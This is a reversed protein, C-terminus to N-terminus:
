NGTESAAPAAPRPPSRYAEVTSPQRHARYPGRNAVDRIARPEPLDKLSTLSASDESPGTIVIKPVPPKKKEAAKEGLPVSLFAGHPDLTRFALAPSPLSAAAARAALLGA